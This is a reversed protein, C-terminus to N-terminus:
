CGYRGRWLSNFGLTEHSFLSRLLFIDAQATAAQVLRELTLVAVAVVALVTAPLVQDLVQLEQMVQLAVMEASVMFAIVAVVAATRILMLGLVVPQCVTVWVLPQFASPAVRAAPFAEVLLPRDAAVAAKVQEV